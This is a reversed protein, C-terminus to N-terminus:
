RGFWYSAKVLFTNDPAARFLNGFERSVDFSGNDIGSETRGQQWVFFLASGPRYEWRAVVNSRFQKFNFGDATGPFTQFRADYSAARPDDLERLNTYRGSTVFPQAYVQLSLTPSATVDFRATISHTQQDLTAFLYHTGEERPDGENRVWQADRRLRASNLSISGQM